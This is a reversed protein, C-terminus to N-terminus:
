LIKKETAKVQELEKKLEPSNSDIKLGQQFTKKAEEFDENGVYAM